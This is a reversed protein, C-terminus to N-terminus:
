TPWPVLGTLPQQPKKAPPNTGRLACQKV